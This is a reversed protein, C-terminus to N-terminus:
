GLEVKLVCSRRVHTQNQAASFGVRLCSTRVLKGSSCFAVSSTIALPSTSM